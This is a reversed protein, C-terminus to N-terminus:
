GKYIVIVDNSSEDDDFIYEGNPWDIKLSATYRRDKKNFSVSFPKGSYLNSIQSFILKDNKIQCVVPNKFFDSKSHLVMADRYKIKTLVISNPIIITKM